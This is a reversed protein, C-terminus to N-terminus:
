QRGLKLARQRSFDAKDGDAMGSRYAESMDVHARGGKALRGVGEERLWDDARSRKAAILDHAGRVVLARSGSEAILLKEEEVLKAVKRQLAGAFGKAYDAGEGRLAGGYRLRAMAAITHSWENYIEVADRVDEAPGYFRIVSALQTKGNADFALTGISTRKAVQGQSKAHYCGVTGVLKEVAFALFGEWLSLKAGQSYVYAASYEVKAAEEHPDCPQGLDNETINHELMLRRAFRMANDIEGEFAGSDNALNLLKRIRDKIKDTNM